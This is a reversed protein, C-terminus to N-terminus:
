FPLDDEDPAAAAAQSPAAGKPAAVAPQAEEEPPPTTIYSRISRYHDAFEAWEERETNGVKVFHPVAYKVTGKKQPSLSLETVVTYVPTKSRAFSTLYSKSAKIASKQVTLIAPAAYQGEDVEMLLPFTHQESCWPIDRQPHTGWEKLKCTACPLSGGEADAPDFEATEWPFKKLDPIGEQFDYSKCLPRDGANVETGWLIRQKILGLIVVRLKDHREGTLNDEFVGDQHNISLRPMVMDTTDFDELGTDLGMESATVPLNNGVPEVSTDSM